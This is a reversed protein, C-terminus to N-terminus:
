GMTQNNKYRVEYKYYMGKILKIETRPEKFPQVWNPLYMFLRILNGYLHLFILMCYQINIKKASLRNKKASNHILVLSLSKHVGLKGKGEEIVKNLYVIEVQKKRLLCELDSIKKEFELRKVSESGKEM